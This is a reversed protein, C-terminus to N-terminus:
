RPTRTLGIVQLEGRPGFGAALLLCQRWTLREAAALVMQGADASAGSFAVWTFVHALYPAKMMQPDREIKTLLADALEAVEYNASDLFGDDRLQEGRALREDIQRTIATAAVALRLEGLDDLGRRRHDGILDGILESAFTGAGAGVM